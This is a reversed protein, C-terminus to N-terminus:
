PFTAVFGLIRETFRQSSAPWRKRLWISTDPSSCRCLRYMKCSRPRKFCHLPLYPPPVKANAWLADCRMADLGLIKRDLCKAELKWYAAAQHMKSGLTKMTSLYSWIRSSKKTKTQKTLSERCSGQCDSPLEQSGCEFNQHFEDLFFALPWSM